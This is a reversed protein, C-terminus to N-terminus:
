PPSAPSTVPPPTLSLLRESRTAHLRLRCSWTSAFGATHLIADSPGSHFRTLPAVKLDLPLPLRFPSSCRRPGWAPACSRRYCRASTGSSFCSCDAAARICSTVPTSTLLSARAGLVDSTPRVLALVDFHGQLEYRPDPPLHPLWHLQPAGPSLVFLRHGRHCCTWAHANGAGLHLLLPM